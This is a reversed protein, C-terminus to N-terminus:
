DLHSGALLDEKVVECSTGLLGGGARSRQGAIRCSGM